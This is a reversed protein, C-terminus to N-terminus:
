YNPSRRQARELNIDQCLDVIDTSAFFDFAIFNANARAARDHRFWTSLHFNNRHVIGRVGGPYKAWLVADSGQPTIQAM